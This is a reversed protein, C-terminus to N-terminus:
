NGNINGSNMEKLHDAVTKCVMATIDSQLVIKKYEPLSNMQLTLFTTFVSDKDVTNKPKEAFRNNVSNSLLLLSEQITGLHDEEKIKRSKPPRLQPSSECSVPSSHNINRCFYKLKMHM